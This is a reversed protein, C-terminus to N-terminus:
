DVPVAVVVVWVNVKPLVVDAGTAAVTVTASFPVTVTVLESPVATATPVAVVV